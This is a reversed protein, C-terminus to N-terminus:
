FVLFTFINAITSASSHPVGVNNLAGTIQDIITQKVVDTRKSLNDLVDAIKYLHKNFYAADKIGLNNTVTRIISGGNRLASAAAKLAQQTIWIRIGRPEITVSATTSTETQPAINTTINSTAFSSVVFINSLIVIALIVSLVKKTNIFM